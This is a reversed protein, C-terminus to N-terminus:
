TKQVQAIVHQLRHCFLDLDKRTQYYHPSARVVDKFGLLPSLFSPMVAVNTNEQALMNKIQISSINDVTFTVIGCHGRGDDCVKIRPIQSLCQRLYDGLLSVKNQINEMGIKLAYDVAVGLGLVLAMNKETLEIKRAGYRVQLQELVKEPSLLAYQELMAPYIKAEKETAIYAFGMGRPGRLWKRSTGVLADCQVAKVDVQRQGVSQCADVLYFAATTTLMEGIQEIPNIMGSNCAIHTIAVLKVTPNLLKKLSELRVQNQANHEIFGLQAGTKQCIHRLSAINSGYESRSVLITDGKNFNLGYVISNWAHTGSETIAIEDSSCRLLQALSHYVKEINRQSRNALEYGGHLAERQLYDTMAHVVPTPALSAGANNLHLVHEVGPTDKRLQKINLM